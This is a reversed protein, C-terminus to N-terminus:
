EESKVEGEAEGQIEEAEDRSQNLRKSMTLYQWGWFLAVMFCPVIFYSATNNGELAFWTEAGAAGLGLVMVVAKSIWAEFLNRRVHTDIAARANLNAIERMASLDTSREPPLARRGMESPDRLKPETPTELAPAAAEQRPAEEVVVRAAPDEERSPSYSTNGLRAMLQTMYADISDQEDHHAEAGTGAHQPAGAAPQSAAERLKPMPESSPSESADHQITLGFRSLLDATTVPAESSPAEFALETEEATFRSLLEDTRTLEGATSPAPVSPEAPQSMEEQHDEQEDEHELAAEDQETLGAPEQLAVTQELAEVREALSTDDEAQVDPTRVAEAEAMAEARLETLRRESEQQQNALAQQWHAREDALADRAADLEGTLDTLRQQLITWRSKAEAEAAERNLQHLRREDEWTARERLLLERTSELERRLEVIESSLEGAADAQRSQEESQLQSIDATLQQVQANAEAFALSLHSLQDIAAALDSSKQNIETAQAAYQAQWTNQQEDFAAQAKESEIRAQELTQDLEALRAKVQSLETRLLASEEVAATLEPATSSATAELQTQWHARERELLATAEAWENEAAALADQTRQSLATQTNLEEALTELRENAHALEAEVRAAKDLAEVLKAATQSLELRHAELEAQRQIREENLAEIAEARESGAAELAEQSRQCAATQIRLEEALTESHENSQSLEAELQSAKEAAGALRENLRQADALEATLRAITQEAAAHRAARAHDDASLEAARERIHDLEDQLRSSAEVAEAVALSMQQSEAQRLAREELWANRDAEFLASQQNLTTQLHALAIQSEEYRATAAKAEAAQQAARENAKALGAELRSSQRVAATLAATKQSLEAHQQQRESQWRQRDEELAKRAQTLGAQLQEAATQTQQHRAALMAGDAALREIEARANELEARLGDREAQWAAREATLVHDLLQAQPPPEAVNKVPPLVEIEYAGIALRDGVQLLADTFDRGNLRVGPSLRRVVTQADGRLIFCQIPDLRRRSPKEPLRVTCSADTGITCKAGEVEIVHSESAHDALRLRLGAAAHGLLSEDPATLLQVTM